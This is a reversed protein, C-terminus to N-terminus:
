GGGMRTGVQWYARHWWTDDLFGASSFLHDVNQKLPNARFDFRQHRMFVSTGDTSLVDPKAGPMSVGRIAKQPELGTEPDRHSIRRSALAQGTVGDLVHLYVGGDVYSSRGAAALALPHPGREPHPVVLVNGPVPWPSELQGYSVIQRSEPAARFRWALAGDEARVCYVWGDASGFYVRGGHVTPPSDVRGGATFQWLASGDKADLAHLTHAEPQAVYLRGAAVVVPSLPGQLKRAWAPGLSASLSAPTAGSRAPDHRYTPWDSTDRTSPRTDLASEYAPGRETPHTQERRGQPTAALANFSHLKATIYCACSHPPAYLLGNAPLIGYQCTGRVWHNAIVRDSSMDIFEVGSRGQIVYQSTAKHRYCRAHGFGITYTKQDPPRRAAVQGTQLDYVETIGPQRKWALVGSWVKGQAVFLDVPSNFGEHCPATWLREGTEASFAMIDGGKLIHNASVRWEM